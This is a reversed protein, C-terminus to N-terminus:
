CLCTEPANDHSDWSFLGRRHFTALAARTM